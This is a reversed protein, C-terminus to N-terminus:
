QKSFERYIELYKPLQKDERFVNNARNLANKSLREYLKEDTLVRKIANSLERPNGKSVIIGADGVGERLGTDDSCVVPKGYAMAEMVVFAMGGRLVSPFVLIDCNAYLGPLEKDDVFGRFEIRNLIGLEKGEKKVKEEEVPPGALTLRFKLPGRLMGLASLLVYIGKDRVLRGLFLINGGRKRKKFKKNSLFVKDDIWNTICEIKKGPFEKEMKHQFSPGITTIRDASGFSWRTLPWKWFSKRQWDFLEWEFLTAIYKKGLIRSCIATPIIATMTYFGELVDIGYRLCICVSYFLYAFFRVIFTDMLPLKFKHVRVGNVLYSCNGETKRAPSLVHVEIGNAALYEAVGTVHRETGGQLPYSFDSLLLAKM